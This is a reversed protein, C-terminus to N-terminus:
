LDEIALRWNSDSAYAMRCQMKHRRLSVAATHRGCFQRITHIVSSLRGNTLSLRVLTQVHLETQKHRRTPPLSLLLYSHPHAVFFHRHPLFSICICHRIRYSTETINVHYIQNRFLLNPAEAQRAPGYSSLALSSSIPVRSPLHRETYLPPLTHM